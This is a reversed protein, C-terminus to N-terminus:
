SIVEKLSKIEKKRRLIKLIENEIQRVHEASVGLIDGTERLTLPIGTDLGYRLSILRICFDRDKPLKRCRKLTGLM